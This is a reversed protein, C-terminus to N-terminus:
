RQRQLRQWLAECADSARLPLHYRAYTTMPNREPNIDASPWQFVQARIMPLRIYPFTGSTGVSFVFDFGRELERLFGQLKTEPLNEGFLVVAPREVAGCSCRPLAPLAAYSAVRRERGCRTCVLVHLDGHIDIVRTSGARQHLGDVNQTLVVVHEFRREFSAIIRHGANHNAARCAREVQLLYKWTLEPQRRFMEGSLVREIPLGDATSMGDYLGGVGRYTPLGSDASLGAGTVFLVRRAGALAQVIHDITGAHENTM